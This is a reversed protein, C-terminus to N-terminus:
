GSRASLRRARLRFSSYELKFIISLMIDSPIIQDKYSKEFGISM